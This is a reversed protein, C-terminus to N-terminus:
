GAPRDEDGEVDLEQQDMVRRYEADADPVAIGPRTIPKSRVGRSPANDVVTITDRSRVIKRERNRM